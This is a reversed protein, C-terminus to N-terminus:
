LNRSLGFQMTRFYKELDIEKTLLTESAYVGLLPHSDNTLRNTIFEGKLSRAIDMKTELRYSKKFREELVEPVHHVVPNDSTTSRPETYGPLFGYVAPVDRLRLNFDRTNVPANKAWKVVVELLLHAHTMGIRITQAKDGKVSFTQYGYYLPEINPDEADTRSTWGPQESRYPSALRIRAERLTTIGVQPEWDNDLRSLNGWAVVTYHGEPLTMTSVYAGKGAHGPLGGIQYLIDNEDFIYETIRYIYNSVMNEERTWERTYWYELQVNYSCVPVETDITCSTPLLWLLGIVWIFVGIYKVRKM